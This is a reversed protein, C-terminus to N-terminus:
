VNSVNNFSKNGIKYILSVNGEDHSEILMKIRGLSNLVSIHKYIDSYIEEVIEPNGDLLSLLNNICENIKLNFQNIKKFIIKVLKNDKILWHFYKFYINFMQKVILSKNVTNSTENIKEICIKVLKNLYQKEEDSDVKFIPIPVNNPEYIVDAYPFTNQIKNLNEVYIPTTKNIEYNLNVLIYTVIKKAM